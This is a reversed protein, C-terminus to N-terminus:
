PQEKAHRPKEGRVRIIVWEGNHNREIVTHCNQCAIAGAHESLKKHCCEIEWQEPFRLDQSFSDFVVAAEALTM